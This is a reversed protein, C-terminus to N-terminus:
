KLRWIHNENYTQNQIKKYIGARSKINKHSKALLYSYLLPCNKICNDGKAKFKIKNDAPPRKNDLNPNM